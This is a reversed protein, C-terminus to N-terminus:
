ARMVADLAMAAALFCQDYCLGGQLYAAFPERMPADASLEISAGQVFAGAAMIVQHQYGPMDWPEPVAMADVPSGKQIGQCFAILGERKGFIISQIIDNRIEEAGPLARYGQTEFVKAFLAAGKLSQLVVHPAMYLGQYYPQYGAANSGVERGLGPSTMRYSIREILEAKGAIYGGTPALGGGPNKILSGVIVDAGLEVPEALRTFEGYCNDVMVVVDPRLQHVFHAIEGIAEPSLTPRTVSYGRSRQIAVVQVQSTLKQAIGERDFRGDELLDVQDYAVGWEALSGQGQGQGDIGIVAHLTDYPQGSISLLAGGKRLLGFLCIALAHTGSAILPRVLADECGLSQAYLKELTDRGIDDYGYGTTGAFHRLGVNHAQFAALVKYQNVRAVAEMRSFVEGLSAEADSVLQAARSSIGFPALCTRLDTRQM